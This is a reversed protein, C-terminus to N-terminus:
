DKVFHKLLKVFDRQPEIFLRLKTSTYVLLLVSVIAVFTIKGLCPCDTSVQMM